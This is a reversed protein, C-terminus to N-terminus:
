FTINAGIAITRFPSYGMGTASEPDQGEFGTITLLNEASVYIRANQMAIKSVWNQTLTYGLSLNKLKIYDGKYLWLTTNGHRNQVYGDIYAMRPYKANINTRPDDPNEPDYDKAARTYDSVKYFEEPFELTGKTRWYNWLCLQLENKKARKEEASLNKLEESCDNVYFSQGDNGMTAYARTGYTTEMSKAVMIKYPMYKAHFETLYLDFWIDELFDLVVDMCLPDVKEYIYSNNTQSLGYIFDPQTYEYLIYSKYSNYYEVIRDDAPSEGQPLVYDQPLTGVDGVKDEDTCAVGGFLCLTILYLNIKKM